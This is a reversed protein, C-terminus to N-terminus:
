PLQVQGLDAPLQDGRHHVTQLLIVDEGHLAEALVTVQGAAKLDTERGPREDQGRMRVECGSRVDRGRM